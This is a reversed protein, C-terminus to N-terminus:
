VMTRLKIMERLSLKYHIKSISNFKNVLQSKEVKFIPNKKKM